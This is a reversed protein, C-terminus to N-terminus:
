NGKSDFPTLLKAPNGKAYGYAATAFMGCFFIVFVLCILLDSRSRELAIGSAIEGPIQNKKDNAKEKDSEPFPQQKIM